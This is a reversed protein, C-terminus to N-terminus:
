REIVQLFAKARKDPSACACARLSGGLLECYADWQISTLSKEAEAMADLSGIYNPVARGHSPLHANSPYSRGQYPIDAKYDHPKVTGIYGTQSDFNTQFWKWGFFKAIECNTDIEEM